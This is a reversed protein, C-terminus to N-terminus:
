PKQQFDMRILNRTCDAYTNFFYRNTLQVGDLDYLVISLTQSSNVPLYTLLVEYSHRGYDDTTGTLGLAEVPEDKLTGEIVIVIKEIPGGDADYVQGVVGMWFCGQEPYATNAAYEIDQLLRFREEELAAPPPLEPIEPLATIRRSVAATPDGPSPLPTRLLIQQNISPIICALMLLGLMPLLLLGTKEKGPLM